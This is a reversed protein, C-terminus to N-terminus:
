DTYEFMKVVRVVDSTSAAIEAAASGEDRSVLGMLYVVGRETVVKVNNADLRRAEILRAKVKSTIYTDQTRAGLETEPGVVLENTVARVYETSKAIGGIEDRIAPTPVEGTLLVKGDYSTVNLHVGSPWRDGADKTVKSEIAQDSARIGTSRRDMAVLTGAGVTAGVVVAACGAVLPAAAAVVLGACAIRILRASPLGRSM